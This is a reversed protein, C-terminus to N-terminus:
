NVFNMDYELTINLENLSSHWSIQCFLKNVGRDYKHAFLALFPEVVSTISVYLFFITSLETVTDMEWKHFESELVVFRGNFINLFSVFDSKNLTISSVDTKSTYYSLPQLIASDTHITSHIISM